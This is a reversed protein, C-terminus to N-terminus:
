HNTIKNLIYNNKFVSFRIRYKEFLYYFFGGLFYALVDFIDSTFRPSIIPCILEFLLSIYIFSSIYFQFDPKWHHNLIDNMIYKIVYSYLPITILDTLHDNIIPIIINNKRLTYIGLWIALGGLLFYPVKM